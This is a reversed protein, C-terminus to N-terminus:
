RGAQRVRLGRLIGRLSVVLPVSFIMGWAGAVVGGATISLLITLPHLRTAGSLLRPSLLGGELQQVAVIIVLVWVAHMVGGQLAFLVAPVGAIWPGIYPVVEMMGMLLGWLLWGPSGVALLGVATLSGVAASVVLQGRFFGATERRMERMARVTRARHRVPVLLMLGDAIRRRDLLLYYAILPSLLVVNLSSAASRLGQAAGSVWGGAQQQVQQMLGDRLSTLNVGRRELFGLLTQLHEEAWRLMDPLSSSLLRFQAVLPPIMGLLVIAAGAGLALLSVSAALAPKMHKELWRCLPLALALLLCAAALQVALTGLVRRLAYAAAALAAVALVRGWRVSGISGREM